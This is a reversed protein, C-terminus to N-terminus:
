PRDRIRACKVYRALTPTVMLEGTSLSPDASLINPRHAVALQTLFTTRPRPKTRRDAARTPEPKPLGIVLASPCRCPGRAAAEEIERQTETWNPYVYALSSSLPISIAARAEAIRGVEGLEVALSNLYDYYLVPYARSLYHIAPWLRQLDTLAGNHDGNRSRLVALLMHAKTRTVEDTGRSARAAELCLSSCTQLDGSNEYTAALELIARERYGAPADDIVGALVIRSEELTRKEYQLSYYVAITQLRSSLPLEVIRQKAWEIVSPRQFLYAQRAIEALWKGSNRADVEAALQRFVNDLITPYATARASAAMARLVLQSSSGNMFLNNRAAAQM